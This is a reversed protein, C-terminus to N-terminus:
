ESVPNQLTLQTLILKYQHLIPGAGIALTRILLPPSGWLYVYASSSPHSAVLLLDCSQLALGQLSTDANM